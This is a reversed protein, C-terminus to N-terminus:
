VSCVKSGSLISPWSLKDFMGWFSTDKNTSLSRSNRRLSGGNYTYTHSYPEPSASESASHSTTVSEIVDTVDTVDTIHSDDGLAAGYFHSLFLFFYVGAFALRM